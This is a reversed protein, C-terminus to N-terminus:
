ISKQYVGVGNKVAGKIVFLEQDAASILSKADDANEPFTAVRFSAGLRVEIGQELTYVTDNMRTLIESAKQIAQCQNYGPLVVVFKDGAFAVAYAPDQLCSNITQAVERIARSGNLHWYTDVIRKFHDLDLFILSVHSDDHQAIELIGPLSQCLYRQNFLGTLNDHLSQNEFLLQSKRLTEEVVKQQTIDVLAVM